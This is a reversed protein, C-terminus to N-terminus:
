QPVAVVAVSVRGVNMTVAANTPNRCGLGVDHTGAGVAATGSVPLTIEDGQEIRLLSAPTIDKGDLTLNCAFRGKLPTAATEIATVYVQGTITLRSSRPLVLAGGGNASLSGLSITADQVVPVDTTQYLEWGAARVPSTLESLGVTGDVIKSGDVSNAALESRGVSGDAIKAFDVSGEALDSRRVQGRGITSSRVANRDLDFRQISGDKIQPSGVTNKALKPALASYAPPALAAALALSAVVLAASPKKPGPM